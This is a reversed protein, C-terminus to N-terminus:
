EPGVDLDDEAGDGVDESAAAELLGVSAAEAAVRADCGCREGLGCCDAKASPECCSAQQTPACCASLTDADRELDVSM